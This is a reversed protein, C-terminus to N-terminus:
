ASTTPRAPTRPADQGEGQALMQPWSISPLPMAGDGLVIVHKHDPVDGIRTLRDAYDINSWRDPLVLAKAKTQRLLFGLEAPGYIHVVPVVILGIRLAALVLEVGEQWHPTQSIIVDGARLGLKHLGAAVNASRALV